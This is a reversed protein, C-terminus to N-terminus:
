ATLESSKIDDSMWLEISELLSDPLDSDSLVQKYHERIDKRLPTIRRLEYLCEWYWVRQLLRVDDASIKLAKEFTDAAEAMRNDRVLLRGLLWLINEDDSRLEHLRRYLKEAKKRYEILTDDDSLGANAHEDYHMALTHMNNFDDPSDTILREMSMTRDLFIDEIKTIAAVAHTRIINSPDSLAGRLLPAFSPHFNRVMIDIANQKEEIDGSILVDTFPVLERHQNESEQGWIRLHEIVREDPSTMQEPLIEKYWIEFPTASEHSWTYIIATLLMGAAGIPGFVLVLLFALLGFWWPQRLWWCMVAQVPFIGCALFHMLLLQLFSIQGAHWVALLWVDFGMMSIVTVYMSLSCYHGAYRWSSKIQNM